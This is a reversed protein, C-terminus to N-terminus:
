RIKFLRHTNQLPQLGCKIKLVGQYFCGKQIQIAQMNSTIPIYKQHCQTMKHARKESSHARSVPPYISRLDSWTVSCHYQASDTRSAGHEALLTVMFVIPRLSWYKVATQESYHDGPTHVPCAPHVGAARTCNPVM